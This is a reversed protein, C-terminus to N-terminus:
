TPPFAPSNVLAPDPESQITTIKMEPTRVNNYGAAAAVQKIADNLAHNEGKVIMPVDPSKGSAIYARVMNEAMAQIEASQDKANDKMYGIVVGTTRKVEIYKESVNKDSTRHVIYAGAQESVTMKSADVDSLGTIKQEKFAKEFAALEPVPATKGVPTPTITAEDNIKVLADKAEQHLVLLQDVKQQAKDVKEQAESVPTALDTVTKEAVPLAKETNSMEEQAKEADTKLVTLANTASAISDQGDRRETELAIKRTSLSDKENTLNEVTEQLKKQRASAIQIEFENSKIDKHQDVAKQANSQETTVNDLNKKAEAKQKNLKNRKKKNKDGTSPIVEQLKELAETAAIVAKNKEKLTNLLQKKKADAANVEADNSDPVKFENLQRQAELLAVNNADIQTSIDTLETNKAKNLATLGDLEAQKDSVAKTKEQETTRLADIDNKLVDRRSTADTQALKVAELATQEVLLTDQATALDKQASEVANAANTQKKRFLDAASPTSPSAVGTM